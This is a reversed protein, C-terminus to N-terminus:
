KFESTRPKSSYHQTPVGYKLKEYIAGNGDNPVVRINDFCTVQSAMMNDNNAPGDYTNFCMIMGGWYDYAKDINALEAAYVKDYSQHSADGWTDEAVSGLDGEAFNQANAVYNKNSLSWIFESFPITVTMWGDTEFPKASEFAWEGENAKNWNYESFQVAASFKRCNDLTTESQSQIALAFVSGTTPSPVNVEFKVVYASPNNKADNYFSGFITPTGDAGDDYPNAEDWDPTWGIYNWDKAGLIGFQNDGDSFSYGMGKERMSVLQGRLKLESPKADAGAGLSMIDYHGNVDKEVMGLAGCWLNTEDRDFDILINRADRLIISSVCQKPNGADDLNTLNKVVIRRTNGTGAPIKVFMEAGSNGQLQIDAGSATSVVAGTNIDQFEVVMQEGLFNAGKIKLFEGDAPFENYIQYVVPAGIVVSLASKSYGSPCNDTYLVGECSSSVVPVKFALSNDHRFAPRLGADKGGFTVKTVGGLNQGTVLIWRGSEIEGTLGAHTSDNLYEVREIVPIACDCGCEIDEQCATFGAMAALATAVLISYKKM